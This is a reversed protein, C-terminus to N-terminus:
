RFYQIFTIFFNSIVTLIAGEKLVNYGGLGSALRYRWIRFYPLHKSEQDM